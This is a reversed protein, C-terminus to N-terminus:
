KKGKSKRNKILIFMTFLTFLIIPYLVGQRVTFYNNTEGIYFTRNAIKIYNQLSFYMFINTFSENFFGSFIDIIFYIFTGLLVFQRNKFKILALGIIESLFTLFFVYTIINFLAVKIPSYFNACMWIKPAFTSWTLSKEFVFIGVSLTLLTSFLSLILNFLFINFIKSFFYRNFNHNRIKIFNDTQENGFCIFTFYLTLFSLINENASSSIYLCGYLDWENKVLNDIPNVSLLPYHKVNHIELLISVFLVSILGLLLKYNIRKHYYNVSNM